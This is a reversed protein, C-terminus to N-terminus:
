LDTGRMNNKIRDKTNWKIVDLNSCGTNKSMSNKPKSYNRITNSSNQKQTRVQHVVNESRVSRDIRKYNCTM